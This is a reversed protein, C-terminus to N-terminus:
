NRAFNFDKCPLAKMSTNWAMGDQHILMNRVNYVAWQTLRFRFVYSMDKKGTAM